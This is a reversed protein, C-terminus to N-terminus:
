DYILLRNKDICHEPNNIFQRLLFEKFFFKLVIKKILVSLYWKRIESIIKARGLEQQGAVSRTFPICKPDVRNYTFFSDGEPISIPDCAPHVRNSKCSRCDLISNDHGRINPTHTIDHDLFQGWQMLMLTFKPDPSNVNSHIEQSVKRPNPLKSGRVSRQRPRPVLMTAVM